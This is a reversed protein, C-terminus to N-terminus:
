QKVLGLYRVARIVLNPDRGMRVVFDVNELAEAIYSQTAAEIEERTIIDSLDRPKPTQWLTVRAVAACADELAARDLM